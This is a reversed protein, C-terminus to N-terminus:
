QNRKGNLHQKLQPHDKQMGMVYGPDLGKKVAYEYARAAHYYAQRELYADGAQRFYDYAVASGTFIRTVYELSRDFEGRRVCISALGALANHENSDIVLTKLFLIEAREDQQLRMYITALNNMTSANYPNLGDAIRTMVLASDLNGQKLYCVGLNTHADYSLPNHALTQQFYAMAETYRGQSVLRRGQRSLRVEPFDAEIRDEEKRAAAHNGQQEHYNVLLRRANRNRIMDMILYDEFHALGIRDVTQAAVRPGLVLLGLAIAPVVVSLAVRSDRNSTLAYHYYFVALPVGVVSFLDWNRPMGIGPNLVFVAGMTSLSLVLLFRHEPRAFWERAPTLVLATVLVPLGPLLILCLNAIDVLHKGSFLWDSEITFRDPFPPLLAFTFFFYHTYLYYYVGASLMLLGAALLVRIRVNRGFLWKAPRSDRFLLYILGPLLTVAFLHFFLAPLVPVVAWWRSLRGKVIAVGILTFQMVAVLFLAYNEVYGFFLLMYGSSALGLLFLFRQLYGDFLRYSWYAVGMLMLVGSVISIIQFTLLADAEGDSGLLYYLTQNVFSTGMDWVKVSPAGEALRALLQYGDGLFHTTARFIVFMLLFVAVTIVAPLLFRQSSDSGARKRKDHRTPQKLLRSLLPPLILGLVLLGYKAAVPLYAWWNLGWIRVEPFFSAFLLLGLMLYYVAFLYQQRHKDASYTNRVNM